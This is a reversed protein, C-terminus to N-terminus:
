PLQGKLLFSQKDASINYSVIMESGDLIVDNIKVTIGNDTVSKNVVTKYEDLSKAIGFFSSIEDIGTIFLVKTLARVGESTGFLTFTLAMIIGAALISKKHTKKKSISKRLKAKINKKEIDNFDLKEYAELNINADNLMSYIDNAM